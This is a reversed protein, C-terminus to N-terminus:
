ANPSVMHAEISMVLLNLSHGCSFWVTNTDTLLKCWSGSGRTGPARLSVARHVVKSHSFYCLWVPAHRACGASGWIHPLHHWCVSTERLQCVGIRPEQQSAGVLPLWLSLTMPMQVDRLVHLSRQQKRDVYTLSQATDNQYVRTSSSVQNSGLCYSDIGSAILIIKRHTSLLM